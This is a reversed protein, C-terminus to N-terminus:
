PCGASFAASFASLDALDLVGFPPALDAAPDGTSFAAAFTAVDALDLVGFPPALDAPNCGAGAPVDAVGCVEGQLGHPDTFRVFRVWPLSAPEGGPGVLEDLDLPTGGASGQYLDIAEAVTLGDFDAMTLSPDVPRTWDQEDTSWAGAVGDWAWPQTPYLADATRVFTYWPGVIDQAVSVTVPEALLGGTLVAADMNTDAAIARDAAIFANGHVILDAGWHFAGADDPNNEIPQDFEVVLQAGQRLGVGNMRRGDLWGPRQGLHAPDNSGYQWAPWALSIQRMPGGAFGGPVPGTGQLDDYDITNPKGLVAEPDDWLTNTNFPGFTLPQGVGPQYVPQGDLVGYVVRDAWLDGAVVPHMAIAAALLGFWRAEDPRSRPSFLRAEGGCPVRGSRQTRPQHGTSM